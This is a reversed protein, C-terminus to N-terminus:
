PRSFKKRSVFVLSAFGIATLLWSTPEPAGTVLDLSAVTQNQYNVGTVCCASSVDTLGNLSLATGSLGLDALLTASLTISTISLASPKNLSVSTTTANATLDTSLQITALTQSLMGLGAIAGSLTLLDTTTDFTETLFLPSYTGNNLPAGTVVLKDLTESLGIPNPPFSPVVPAAPGLSGTNLDGGGTTSSFLIDAARSPIASGFFLLTGCLTFASILHKV